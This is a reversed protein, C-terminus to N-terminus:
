YKSAIKGGGYKVEITSHDGDGVPIETITRLYCKISQKHYQKWMESFTKIDM